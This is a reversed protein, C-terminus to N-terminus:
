SIQLLLKLLDRDMTLPECIQNRHGEDQAKVHPRYGTDRAGPRVLHTATDHDRPPPSLVLDDGPWVGATEEDGGTDQTM